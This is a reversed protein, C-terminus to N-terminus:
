RFDSGLCISKMIGIVMTFAVNAKLYNLICDAEYSIKVNDDNGFSCKLVLAPTKINELNTKFCSYSVSNGAGPFSHNAYTPNKLINRCRSRGRYLVNNPLAHSVPESRSHYIIHFIM